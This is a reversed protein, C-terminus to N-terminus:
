TSFPYVIAQGNWCIDILTLNHFATQRVLPVGDSFYIYGLSYVFKTQSAGSLTVRTGLNNSLTIDAEDVIGSSVTGELLVYGNESVSAWTNLGSVTVKETWSGIQKYITSASEILYQYTPNSGSGPTPRLRIQWPHPPVSGGAEYYGNEPPLTGQRENGVAGEIVVSHTNDLRALIKRQGDKRTFLIPIFGKYFYSSDGNKVAAAQLDSMAELRAENTRETYSRVGEGSRQGPREEELARVKERYEKRQQQYEKQEREEQESRSEDPLRNEERGFVPRNANQNWVSADSQDLELWNMGTAGVSVSAVLQQQLENTVPTPQFGQPNALANTVRDFSEKEENSALASPKYNPDAKIKAEMREDMEDENRQKSSKTANRAAFSAEMEQLSAITGNQPPQPPTPPTLPQPPPNMEVFQTSAPPQVPIEFSVGQNSVEPNQGNITITKALDRFTSVAVDRVFDEINPPVVVPLQPLPPRPTEAFTGPDTAARQIQKDAIIDPPRKDENNPITGVASM